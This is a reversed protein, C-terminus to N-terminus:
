CLGLQKLFDQQAVCEKTATNGEEDMIPVKDVSRERNKDTVHKM